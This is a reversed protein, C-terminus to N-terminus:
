TERKSSLQIVAQLNPPTPIDMLLAPLELFQATEARARQTDLLTCSSPQPGPLLAVVFVM